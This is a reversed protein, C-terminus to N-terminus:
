GADSAPDGVAAAAGSELWRLAAVVRRDMAATPELDLKRMIARIHANVTRESIVLSAAIAENSRGEAMLGLVRREAPSLHALAAQRERRRMLADVIVADVATEGAAVRQLADVVVERSRVTEKLLYGIGGRLGELIQLAFEEEHHNSLLLGGVRPRAARLSRALEVGEDSYTPPMRVDVVACDPQERAVADLGGAVDDAEGVVDCGAKQLLSVLGERYVLSDEVVIVRLTM